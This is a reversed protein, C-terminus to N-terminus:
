CSSMRYALPQGAPLRDCANAQLTMSMRRCVQSPDLQCCPRVSLRVKAARPQRSVRPTTDGMAEPDHPQRDHSEAAPRGSSSRSSSHPPPAAPDAAAASPRLSHPQASADALLASCASLRAEAAAISPRVDLHNGGTCVVGPVPFSIMSLIAVSASDAHHLDSRIPITPLAAVDGTCSPLCLCTM